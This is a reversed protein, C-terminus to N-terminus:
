FAKEKYDLCENLLNTKENCDSQIRNLSEFEDYIEDYVFEEDCPQGNYCINKDLNSLNKNKKLEKEVLSTLIKNLNYIIIRFPLKNIQSALSRCDIISDSTDNLKNFKDDDLLYGILEENQDPLKLYFDNGYTFVNSFLSSSESSKKLQVSNASDISEYFEHLYINKNFTLNLCKKQFKEYLHIRNYDDHFENQGIKMPEKLKCIENETGCIYVILDSSEILEKRLISNTKFDVIKINMQKFYEKFALLM